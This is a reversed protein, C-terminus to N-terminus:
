FIFSEISDIQLLYVHFLFTCEKKKWLFSRGQSVTNRFTAVYGDFFINLSLASLETNVNMKIDKSMRNGEEKPPNERALALSMIPHVELEVGVYTKM